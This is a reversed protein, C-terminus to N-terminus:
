LSRVIDKVEDIKGTCHLVIDCGANWSSSAREAINGSLAKMEIADTMIMGSFGIKERIYKIVNESTTAPNSPDLANYIVHATMSYHCSASLAKFVAFDTLELEELSAEVIPLAKHSDLTSRGHGPIHKIVGEGGAKRIGSLAAECLDVIKGVNDGFSRDGIVDHAGKFRIDSVPACTVDIKLAMLESMLEYFNQEVFKIAVASNDDYMNGFYEMNHYHKSGVPPKIRQVRGGEQDIFIKTNPSLSKIHNNLATIQDNSECNRSFLIIGHPKQSEILTAEDQTLIKGSVGFILGKM